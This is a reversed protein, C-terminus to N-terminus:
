PSLPTSAKRWIDLSAPKHTYIRIWHEYVVVSSERVKHKQWIPCFFDQLVRPSFPCDSTVVKFPNLPKFARITLNLRLHYFLWVCTVRHKLDIVYQEAWRSVVHKLVNNSRVLWTTPTSSQDLSFLILLYGSPKSLVPSVSALYELLIFQTEDSKTKLFKQLLIEFLIYLFIFYEHGSNVKSGQPPM